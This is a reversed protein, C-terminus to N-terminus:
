FKINHVICFVYAVDAAPFVVGGDAVGVVAYGGAGRKVLDGVGPYAGHATDAFVLEGGFVLRGSGGEFRRRQM